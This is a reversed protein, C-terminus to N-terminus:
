EEEYLYIPNIPVENERIEFHLHVGTSNGTSGMDAIHEGKEVEDGKKVHLKSTHAYRTEINNGHDIYIAYGYGNLYTAQTVVGKAAAHIPTGLLNAVDIGKHFETNKTSFSNTRNGFYSTIEGECPLHSPMYLAKEKQKEEQIRKGRGLTLPEYKVGPMVYIEKDKVEKIESLKNNDIKNAKVVPRKEEIEEIEEIAKLEKTTNEVPIFDVKDKLLQNFKYVEQSYVFQRNISAYKIYFFCTSMMFLFMLCAVCSIAWRIVTSSLNFTTTAGGNSPVIIINFQKDLIERTIWM